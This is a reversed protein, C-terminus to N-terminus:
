LESADVATLPEESTHASDLYSVGAAEADTVDAAKSMSAAERYPLDVWQNRKQVDLQMQEKWRLPNIQATLM